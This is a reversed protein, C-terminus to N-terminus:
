RAQLLEGGSRHLVGDYDTDPCGDHTTGDYGTPANHDPNTHVGNHVPAVHDCSAGCHCVNYQESVHNPDNYSHLCDDEIRM